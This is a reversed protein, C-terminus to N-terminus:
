IVLSEQTDLFPENLDVSYMDSYNNQLSSGGGVYSTRRSGRPRGRGGTSGRGRPQNPLGNPTSGDVHVMGGAQNQGRGAVFRNVRPRGRTRTVRPNRIPTGGVIASATTASSDLNNGNPPNWNLLENKLM